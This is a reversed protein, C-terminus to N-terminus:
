KTPPLYAGAYLHRAKRIPNPKNDTRDIYDGYSGLEMITFPSGPAEAENLPFAQTDASGAGYPMMNFRWTIPLSPQSGHLDTGLHKCLVDFSNSQTADALADAWLKELRLRDVNYDQARGNLDESQSRWFGEEALQTSMGYSHLKELTMRAGNWESAKNVWYQVGFCVGILGALKCGVGPLQSESVAVVPSTVTYFAGTVTGWVAGIMQEM